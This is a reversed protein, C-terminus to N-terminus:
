GEGRDSGHNQRGSVFGMAGGGASRRTGPDEGASGTEKAKKEEDLARGVASAGRRRVPLGVPSTELPEDEVPEARPASPEPRTEARTEVPDALLATASGLAARAGSTGVPSSREIDPERLLDAPITVEARIGGSEGASLVVQINWQQTIRAVVPLGLQMHRQVGGLAFDTDTSLITNAEGLKEPQMGLGRDEIVVVLAGSREETWVRAKGQPSSYNAANDMLEALVRILYPAAQGDVAVAGPHRTHIRGYHEIEARASELIIEMATPGRHYRALRNGSLLRLNEALRRARLLLSDLVLLARYRPAAEGAEREETDVIQMANQVIQQVRAAMGVVVRTFANSTQKQKIREQVAVQYAGAFADAVEGIEDKGFDLSRLPASVDVEEGREVKRFLEPVDEDAIKRVADRLEVLRQPVLAVLHRGAFWWMLVAAGATALLVLGAFLATRLLANTGNTLGLDAGYRAQEVALDTLEGGVQDSIQNWQQTTVGPAQGRTILQQEITQLRQWAPSRTLEEYRQTVQPSSNPAQEELEDHYSGVLVAFDVQEEPLMRAEVGRTGLMTTQAMQDGARFIETATIGAQGAEADEVSRAQGDFLDAGAELIENYHHITELKHAPNVPMAPRFHPLEGILARVREIKGKMDAPVAPNSALDGLRGSLEGVARDTAAYRQALADPRSEGDFARAVQQREAQVATFTRVAPISTDQVTVAVYRVILGDVFSPAFGVLVVVFFLAVITILINRIRRRLSTRDPERTRSRGLRM